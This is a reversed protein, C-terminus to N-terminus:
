AQHVSMRSSVTNMSSMYRAYALRACATYGVWQLIQSGIGCFLEVTHEKEVGAGFPALHVTIRMCSVLRWNAAANLALQM